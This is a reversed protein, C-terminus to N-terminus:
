VNNEEDGEYRLGFQAYAWPLMDQTCDYSYMTKGFYERYSTGVLTRRGEPTGITLMRKVPGAWDKGMVTYRKIKNGLEPTIGPRELRYSSSETPGILCMVGDREELCFTEDGFVQKQNPVYLIPEKNSIFPTYAVETLWQTGECDTVILTKHIHSKLKELFSVTGVPMVEYGLERLFWEFLGSVDHCIGGKKEVVIRQFLADPDCPTVQKTLFQTNEYPISIINHFTLKKLLQADPVIKEPMVLGIREFYQKVRAEDM